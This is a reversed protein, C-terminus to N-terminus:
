KDILKLAANSKQAELHNAICTQTNLNMMAVSNNRANNFGAAFRQGANPECHIEARCMSVAEQEVTPCVKTTACGQIVSILFFLILRNNIINKKFVM